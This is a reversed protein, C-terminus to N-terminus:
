RWSARCPTNTSIADADDTAPSRCSCRAPSSSRPWSTTHTTVPCPRLSGSHAMAPAEYDEGSGNAGPLLNVASAVTLYDASLKDIRLGNARDETLLYGTGDTDQFLSMDLSMHGLPQFSGRYTYPGCPTSSTAVGVKRESYSSNDIHTYMVYTRTAANYLVKPREM